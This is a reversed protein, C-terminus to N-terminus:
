LRGLWERSIRQAEALQGPDLEDGLERRYIKAELSGFRAALDFLAHASVLDVPAGVGTAFGMGLRFLEASSPRSSPPPLRTDLTDCSM